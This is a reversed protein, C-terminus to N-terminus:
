SAAPEPAGVPAAQAPAAPAPAPVSAPQLEPTPPKPDTPLGLGPTHFVSGRVWRSAPDSGGEIKRAMNGGVTMPGTHTMEADVCCWVQGGMSLWRRFFSIDEGVHTKNVILQAFLAWSKIHGIQVELDAYRRTMALITDRRCVMFASGAHDVRVFGDRFERDRCDEAKTTNFLIGDSYTGAEIKETDISRYPVAAIMMPEGFAIMRAILDAPWGIDSDCMVLWEAGSAIFAGILEERANTVISCGHSFFHKVRYGKSNLDRTADILSLVYWPKCGDYAPTAFFVVPGKPDTSKMPLDSTDTMPTGKM